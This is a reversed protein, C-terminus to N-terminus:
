GKAEGAAAATPLPAQETRGKMGLAERIIRSQEAGHAAAVAPFVPLLNRSGAPQGRLLCRM